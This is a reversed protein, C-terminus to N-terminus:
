KTFEKKRNYQRKLILWFCLDDRGETRPTHAEYIYLTSFARHKEGETWRELEPNVSLFTCTEPQRLACQQERPLQLSQARGLLCPVQGGCSRTAGPKRRNRHCQGCM